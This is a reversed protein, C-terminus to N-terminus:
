SALVPPARLSYHLVSVKFINQRVSPSSVVELLEEHFLPVQVPIAVDAPASAIVDIIQFEDSSHSHQEGGFLHSHVVIKDGFHHSHYFLNTSAFLVAYVVMLTVSALKKIWDMMCVAFIARKESIQM